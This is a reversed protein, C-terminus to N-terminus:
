VEVHGGDRSPMMLTVHWVPKYVMGLGTYKLQLGYRVFM